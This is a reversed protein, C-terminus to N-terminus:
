DIFVAFKKLQKKLDNHRNIVLQLSTELM